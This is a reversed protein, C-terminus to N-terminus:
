GRFSPVLTFKRETYAPMDCTNIITVSLQRVCLNYRMFLSSFFIILLSFPFCAGQTCGHYLSLRCLVWVFCRSCCPSGLAACRGLVAWREAGTVQEHQECQTCSFLFGCESSRGRATNIDVSPPAVSSRPTPEGCYKSPIVPLWLYSSPRVHPQSKCMKPLLNIVINDAPASIFLLASRVCCSERQGPRRAKM